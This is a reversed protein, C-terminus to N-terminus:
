TPSDFNPEWDAILNQAAHHEKQHLIYHRVSEIDELGVSFAAYAGQWRFFDNPTLETAILHASVGKIEKIVHAINETAPMEILLHVHDAVGGIAIVEVGLEACKAEISRYIPRENTETILPLRDWTAWICHIFLGVRSHRM